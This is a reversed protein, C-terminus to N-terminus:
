NKRKPFRLYAPSDYDSDDDDNRGVTGFSETKEPKSPQMPRMMKRPVFDDNSTFSSNNRKPLDSGSTEPPSALNNENSFLRRTPTSSLRNRLSFSPSSPASTKKSKKDFGTAVVMVSIHEQLEPDLVTGFIINADNDDGISQYVYDMITEVEQMELADNASINVLVGTSGVINIDDLLPSHIAKKVAEMSRNPGSAIGLGMIARGGNTMISKVDAFDVQVEGHKLIVDSIGRVASTLIEDALKFADKFSTKEEIIEMLKQNPVVIMTDLYNELEELGKDANRSRVIGEFRFPKTVIGVTLIDMEKAIKAIVPAAGTGTGGGMGAAIFIMNCNELINKIDEINEEVARKGVEPNAGAGLGKTSTSGIHIRHPAKNNELAISDTNMAIFDIGTIGEEIMRNIANGGAGGIGLVKMKAVITTDNMAFDMM